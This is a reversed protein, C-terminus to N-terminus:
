IWIVRALSLLYDGSALAISKAEDFRVSELNRRCHRRGSSASLSSPWLRRLRELLWCRFCFERVFQIDINRPGNEHKRKSRRRRKRRKKQKKASIHSAITNGHQDHLSKLPIMDANCCNLSFACSSPRLFFSSLM